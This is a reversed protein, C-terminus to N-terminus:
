LLEPERRQKPRAHKPRPQPKEHAVGTKLLVAINPNRTQVATLGTELQLFKLKVSSALVTPHVLILCDTM